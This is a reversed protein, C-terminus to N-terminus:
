PTDPPPSPPNLSRILKLFENLREYADRPAVSADPKMEPRRGHAVWNRHKRIQNVQEVLNKDKDELKFAELLRGFSGHEVDEEVAKGAKVLSPHKLRSIEPALQIKLHDRVNAEFVSFLVLIALDDHEDTVTKADRTLDTVEAHRLVSDRKVQAIWEHEQDWPFEGWYKALHTLRKMGESVARYWAWAEDLTTM